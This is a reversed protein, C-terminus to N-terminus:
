QPPLLGGYDSHSHGSEGVVRENTMQLNDDQPHLSTHHNQTSTGGGISTHHVSYYRRERFSDGLIMGVGVGIGFITVAANMLTLVTTYIAQQIRKPKSTNNEVDEQHQQSQQQFNLNPIYYPNISQSHHHNVQEQQDQRQRYDGQHHSHIINVRNNNNHTRRISNHNNDKDIATQTSEENTM